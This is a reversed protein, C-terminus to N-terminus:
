FTVNMGVMVTRPLPYLGLDIGSAWDDPAYGIEPDMGDYSTFTHLNNVSVYLSAAQIHDVSQLMSDFKYGFTLNNVRLYDADHVYIDSILNSNANAVASLRPMTNSTGEGHWRDFVSTPYNQSPSGAFDRYSQMVQMGFKGSLAANVYFGRYEANLQIGMEFDPHPSGIKVKDDDDIIGDGNQDVFRVDGPRRAIDSEADIVIPDGDATVYSDVEDQNQFIGDTEYGYFFGIPQGVEVRSVYSTGQALVDSEGRIVGEANALRTVENKNHAGSLTIGYKFDGERDNWSLSFEFGTNEVDGGNIYPAGAGYVGMIPAIVLWDKTTKKYWDLNLGLRTNFFNADLGFNLQESTEWTVDPNPINSPIATSASTLKDPGFYYGRSLYSINSTYIFNNISQNGNQGWSGRLKAFSLWHFDQMFEEESFNWGASFSPFYGWRNGSAFNSSGDARFTADVMYREDYNYSARGMYSMLGGGQAAWDRGDASIDGVSEVSQVNALYAHEFMGFDTGAKSASISSNLINELMETGALLDIKHNDISFDYNLTNTWTYTIGQYKSQSIRDTSRRDLNALAYERDYSRSHGFWGNIGFSSRFRLDEVPQLEAFVNGAVTNGRGDNYKHRDIMTAVPNHQNRDVGELTPGYGGTLRNQAGMDYHVPMFPNTIMADHLDNYYINGTAVSRNKTNTYTFNEGVTLIDHQDNKFLVMETNMRATIRRYGADTVDGGIIGTQDLYSFGLAYTIDEASGTINIAHSQVPADSKTIADVWDTGTWGDQLKDWVHQGYTTGAQAPFSNDLYSNGNVILNEWNYPTAGDNLRAEDFIYMYEQANLSTPRKYMNQVGYYADYTVRTEAGRTGKKTTVLIVGNAARSGYIAASAADKLVDISEIDSANLYDISSMAVGDVIYLPESDGVTGMGRITVSTGAGPAGHNRTVQVGPAVGQLAEMATSTNLEAIDDGGVNVNAGTVLARRQVGYGVVVVEDLDAFSERLVVDINSQGDVSVNQTEMGIFSFVLVADPASVDISYNGDIDTVVGRTTGDELVSVGPVPAGDSDTVVGAVQHQAYSAFSVLLFLILILNKRKM